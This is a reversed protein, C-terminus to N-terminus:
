HSVRKIMLEIEEFPSSKTYSVSVSYEPGLNRKAEYELDSKLEANFKPARGLPYRSVVFLVEPPDIANDYYPRMTLEIGTTPHHGLVGSGNDSPDLRVKWGEPYALDKAYSEWELRNLSFIHDADVKNLIIKSPTIKMSNHEKRTPYGSGIYVMKLNISLVPSRSSPIAPLPGQKDTM